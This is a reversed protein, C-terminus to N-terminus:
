WICLCDFLRSSWLPQNIYPVHAEQQMYNPEFGADDGQVLHDCKRVKQRYVDPDPPTDTALGIKGKGGKGCGGLRLTECCFESLRVEEDEKNEEESPERTAIKWRLEM